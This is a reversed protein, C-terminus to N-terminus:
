LARSRRVELRNRKAMTRGVLLAIELARENLLRPDVRSAYTRGGRDVETNGHAPDCCSLVALRSARAARPNVPV